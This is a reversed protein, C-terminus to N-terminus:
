QKKGEGAKNPQKKDPMPIDPVLGNRIATPDHVAPRDSEQSMLASSASFASSAAAGVCSTSDDPAPGYDIGGFSQGHAHCTLCGDCINHFDYASLWDAHCAICLSSSSGLDVQLGNVAVVVDKSIGYTDFPPGNFSGNETGDDIYFTGDVWDRIMYPNGVQNTPTYSGHPDHCDKCDLVASSAGSYGVWGRKSDLGHAAHTWTYDVFWPEVNYDCTDLGRLAVTPGIVGTPLDPDTPGFGGTHCQLCFDNDTGTWPILTDYPDAVPQSTSATHAGHCNLCELKAGSFSQDADSIDHHSNVGRLTGENGFCIDGYWENWQLTGQFRTAVDPAANGNGFPDFPTALRTAGDADHCGSCFDSIDPDSTLDQTNVFRYISGDDPDILEVYGDQHTDISHCTVCAQSNLETGYHAHADSVPFESVIARRGGAPVGDGNDQVENHCLTCDPSFGITHLHCDTCRDSDNHGIYAGGADLDAPAIGGQALNGNRHHNTQTHCMDCINENFPPGDAFSGADREATFEILEEINYGTVPNDFCIYEKILKGYTTGYRLNQEQLHPNHCNLCDLNWNGYTTGLVSSSHVQVDQATSFGYPPSLSYQQKLVGNLPDSTDAPDAHCRQCETRQDITGTDDFHCWDCPAKIIDDNSDLLDFMHPGDKPNTKTNCSVICDADVSDTGGDCDNDKGDSCTLDGFPGETNGPYSDPDNDDCDGACKAVGDNDDDFDNAVDLRGDCNSDKGDCIRPAGPYVNPDTDDCDGEGPTWGDGDGDIDPCDVVDASDADGDCDNDLGDDCTAEPTETPTGPQCATEVGGACSSPTNNTKCVGIGCAADIVYDEDISGDCDGDLGDCTVDTPENQPGPQCATEVGGGCTSPTNNPAGCVGLGCSADSVYGDDPFGNCDDDIGDCNTDPLGTLTCDCDPDNENALGDCDEDLLGPDACIEPAAGALPDCTDVETGAQCQLEGTNSACEGQGCTTPTPVYGQDPTGDCDDDVGDCNTDPLGTPTCDPCDPDNTDVLSDCDNDQGDICNETNGPYNNPDNDDCDNACKAVGDNDDDFDNAVDLRGDCNSDKGDCIRPAGPYVNPDTDDCDGAGPTWGDGDGDIDPCDALDASDADGDCDNDIGDTCTAEPTETPTGPQCATETGGACSSPTNNTQCVGLGCTNDIVYDEDISSDCDGDLGDCTADTPEDQPGLQCPTEVGGVCTSPTNNPAGCVGVGCSGDSVYGDDPFGNCDDDIGDCNTDPLGTPTCVCDPDNDNSLGDCDEDLLGPDACIEPAAGSLPDCTDVETGAQCQLEGTNSACEGQGCTTPTPVYGQDPTGDCDDDVGDCNTDPLGTPTCDPCEPDNTDVLSDCDNDQGDICNETNGPYNNPDNDDCDNACKAVGDGDDDFDNAVDLRGDCNSDKGDCIRPATPYVNPDTDDCDGEGPTWGDGDGDIDPCDAIDASDADGDCDNDLGDDCTAEPTETPSGPQCATETGGACSSPTNNTQCVGLGCTDDIVYDEDISGDCDGDLGDCTVDTQENQPGPQCATEVGGVCTSPTNTTNCVGFGCSGDSVYGDDPFGNCDDDIGDCNTDPLGTPTCVCDPDNDNSLGDCDEDLLGPDACIEPAAGALPDCTDVETGAQCEIQGANNACEGQGCTTPTPSYGQDPTGDCDDDVGDCNTDPLGTPTCDPCDPDNTDVLSDCDNDQGDICNETNGPYNNPNNDNCDNACVAVGDGDNDVDNAVDLRGDCNSDKGDCIRPAGPHVNPDDDDCDVGANPCSTDGFQGYGDEDNDICVQSFVPPSVFFIFSLFLLFSLLFINCRRYKPM